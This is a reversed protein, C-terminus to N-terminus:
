GMEALAGRLLELFRSRSMPKTAEFPTVDTLEWLEEARLQLAPWLYSADPLCEHLYFDQLTSCLSWGQFEVEPTAWRYAPRAGKKRAKGKSCEFELWGEHAAVLRSRQMHEFRICSVASQIMFTLVVM